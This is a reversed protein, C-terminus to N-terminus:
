SWGDRQFLKEIHLIIMLLYVFSFFFSTLLKQRHVCSGIPHMDNYNFLNFAIDVLSFNFRRLIRRLFPSVSYYRVQILKKKRRRSRRIIRRGGRKIHNRTQVTSMMKWLKGSAEKQPGKILKMKWQWFLFSFHAQDITIYNKKVAFIKIHNIYKHIRSPLERFFKAEIMERCHQM